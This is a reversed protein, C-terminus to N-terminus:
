KLLKASNKHVHRCRHWYILGSLNFRLKTVGLTYRLVLIQVFTRGTDKETDGLPLVGLIESFGSHTTVPIKVFCTTLLHNAMTQRIVDCITTYTCLFHSIKAFNTLFKWKFVTHFSFFLIIILTPSIYKLYKTYGSKNNM